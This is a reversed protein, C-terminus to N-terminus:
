TEVYKCEKAIGYSHTANMQIPCPIDYGAGGRESDSSEFYKLIGGCCECAIADCELNQLTM